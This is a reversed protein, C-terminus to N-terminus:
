VTNAAACRLQSRHERVVGELATGFQILDADLRRTVKDFLTALDEQAKPSKQYLAERVNRVDEMFRSYTQRYLNLPYKKRGPQDAKLSFGVDDTSENRPDPIFTDIIDLAKELTPAKKFSGIADFFLFTDLLKNGKMVDTVARFTVPDNAKGSLIDQTQRSSLKFQGGFKKDLYAIALTKRDFDSLPPSAKHINRTAVAILPGYFISRIKEVVGKAAPKYSKMGAEAATLIRERAIDLHDSSSPLGPSFYELPNAARSVSGLPSGPVGNASGNTSILTRNM